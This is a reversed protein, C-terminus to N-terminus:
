TGVAHIPNILFKILPIIMCVHVLIVMEGSLQNGALHLNRLVTLKGLELPISGALM